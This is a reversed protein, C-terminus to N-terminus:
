VYFLPVKIMGLYCATAHMTVLRSAKKTHLFNCFFFGFKGKIKFVGKLKAM